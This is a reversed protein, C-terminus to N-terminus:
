GCEGAFVVGECWVWSALLLWLLWFCWWDSVCCGLLWLLCGRGRFCRNDLLLYASRDGFAPTRFRVVARTFVRTAFPARWARPPSGVSRCHHNAYATHEGRVHLHDAPPCHTSHASSTSEVCTSTIRLHCPHPTLALHARWARPPSGIARVATAPSYQHEGRVHLHDTRSGRSSRRRATSEVCTSTIRPIAHRACWSVLARWARPPSGAASIRSNSSYRHEGRVHLHDPRARSAPGRPDTSEVCTSTIRDHPSRRQPRPRARWARPPSGPSCRDSGATMPHEGRVHLHDSASSSTRRSTRTSEVSTSTIWGSPRCHPGGARARWARPPSGGTRVVNPMAPRHEGCVHLHDPSTCGREVVTSTGEVCTSTIRHQGPQHREQQQARWVRPPSGPTTMPESAHGAHEGRVHLHDASGPGTGTKHQTSEVCMTDSGTSSQGEPEPRTKVWGHVIM